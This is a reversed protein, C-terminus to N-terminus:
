AGQLEDCEAKYAEILSTLKTQVVGQAAYVEGLPAVVDTQKLEEEVTLGLQALRELHARSHFELEKLKGLVVLSAELAPSPAAALGEASGAGGPAPHQPEVAAVAPGSKKKAAAPKKGPQVAHAGAPSAEAGDHKKEQAVKKAHAVDRPDSM